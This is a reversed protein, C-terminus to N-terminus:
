MGIIQYKVMAYQRHKRGILMNMIVLPEVSDIIVMTILVITSKKIASPKLAMAIKPNLEQNAIKYVVFLSSIVSHLIFSPETDRRTKWDNIAAIDDNTNERLCLLFAEMNSEFDSNKSNICVFVRDEM